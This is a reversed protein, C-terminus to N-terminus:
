KDERRESISIKVQHNNGDTRHTLNALKNFIEELEKARRQLLIIPPTARYIYPNKGISDNKLKERFILKRSFMKSLLERVTSPHLKTGKIIQESRAGNKRLLFLYIKAEAQSKLLELVARETGKDIRINAGRM